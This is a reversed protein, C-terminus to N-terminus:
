GGAYRISSFTMQVIDDQNYTFHKGAIPFCRRGLETTQRKSLYLFVMVKPLTTNRIPTIM